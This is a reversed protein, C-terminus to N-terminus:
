GNEMLGITAGAGSRHRVYESLNVGWVGRKNKNEVM